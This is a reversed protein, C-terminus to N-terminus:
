SAVFREKKGDGNVIGNTDNRLLYMKALSSCSAIEEIKGRKQVKSSFTSSLM